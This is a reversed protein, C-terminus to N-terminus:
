RFEFRNGIRNKFTSANLLDLGESIKEGYMIETASYGTSEHVMNNFKMTLGPLFETWETKPHDATFFRLAIKVTQNTRESQGDTQPHYATSVLMVVGLLDLLTQWFESMFKPDRDNITEKIIGWDATQM